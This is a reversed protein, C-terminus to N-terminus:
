LVEWRDPDRPRGYPSPTVYEVPVAGLGEAVDLWPDGSRGLALSGPAILAAPEDSVVLDVDVGPDLAEELAAIVADAIGPDVVVVPTAGCGSRALPELIAVVVGADDPEAIRVTTPLSAAPLEIGAARALATLVQRARPNAPDALLARGAVAYPAVGDARRRLGADHLAIATHLLRAALWAPCEGAWAAPFAPDSFTEAMAAPEHIAFRGDRVGQVSGTAEHQRYQVLPEALACVPERLALRLWALWDGCLISRPDFGGIGRLADIRVVVSPTAANNLPLLRRAFDPAPVVEDAPLPLLVGTPAGGADITEVPGHVYGAATDELAEVKRALNGPLMVDDAAFPALYRADTTAAARNMSHFFNSGPPNRVVEVEDYRQAIAVTDDTSGNDFLVVRLDVGGQDLISEIAEALYPAGDKVSIAALM